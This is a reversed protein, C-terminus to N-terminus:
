VLAWCGDVYIEVKSPDVNRDRLNKAVNECFKRWNKASTVAVKLELLQQTKAFNTTQSFLWYKASFHPFYWFDHDELNIVKKKL